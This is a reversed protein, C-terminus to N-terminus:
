TFCTVAIIWIAFFAYELSHMDAMNVLTSYTLSYVWYGRKLISLVNFTGKLCTKEEWKLYWNDSSRRLFFLLKEVLLPGSLSACYLYKTKSSNACMKYIFCKNKSGLMESTSKEVMLNLNSCQMMIRTYIYIYIYLEVVTLNIQFVIDKFWSKWVPASKTFWHLGIAQM